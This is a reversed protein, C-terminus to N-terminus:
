WRTRLRGRAALHGDSRGRQCPSGADDPVVGRQRVARGARVPLRRRLRRRDADLRGAHDARAPSTPCPPRPGHGFTMEYIAQATAIWTVFMALLLVGLGLMGGFSPSRLVEFAQWASADEGLERRRSLEYLGIAAFPGILAFGAALPFLLPMVSYGLVLRALVLGLVPYIMCLIVAHSPM